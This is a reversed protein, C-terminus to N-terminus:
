TEHVRTRPPNCPFTGGGWLWAYVPRMSVGPAAAAQPHPAPAGEGCGHKRRDCRLVPRLRPKCTPAIACHM